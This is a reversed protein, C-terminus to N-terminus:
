VVSRSGLRSIAELIKEVRDRVLKREELLRAIERRAGADASASVRTRGELEELRARLRVNERELSQFLDVAKELRQELRVLSQRISERESM